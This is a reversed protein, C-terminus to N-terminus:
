NTARLRYFGIPFYMPDSSFINIPLQMPGNTGPIPASSSQWDVLNTSFYLQYSVGSIGTWRMVFNTGQLEAALNPAITTV